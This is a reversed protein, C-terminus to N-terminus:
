EQRLALMPDVLTARRAPIVSAAAAIAMLLLAAMSLAAASVPHVGFLVSSVLPAALASGALGLALGAATLLLARRAVM